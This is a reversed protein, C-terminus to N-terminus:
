SNRVDGSGYGDDFLEEVPFGFRVTVKKDTENRMLYRVEVDAAKSGLAVTLKEDLIRIKETEKPEFGAVDGAREVGGRFYGGGNAFASPALVAFACSILLSVKM